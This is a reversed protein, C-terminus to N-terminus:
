KRLSFVSHFIASGFYAGSSLAFEFIRFVFHIGITSDPINL